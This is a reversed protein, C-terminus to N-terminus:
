RGSWGHRRRCRPRWRNTGRGRSPRTRARVSRFVFLAARPQPADRHVLDFLLHDVAGRPALEAVQEGVRALHDQGLAVGVIREVAGLAVPHQGAQQAARQLVLELVPAGGLGLQDAGAVLGDLDDSLVGVVVVEARREVPLVVVPDPARAAVGLPDAEVQERAGAEAAAPGAGAGRQVLLLHVDLGVAGELQDDRLSLMGPVPQARLGVRPAEGDALREEVLPVLGM